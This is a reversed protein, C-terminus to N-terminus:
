QAKTYRGDFLINVVQDDQLLEWLQRVSGDSLDTWTIRNVYTNGDTLTFPESTLVMRDEIRNGFLKLTNGSNDIWLQEWQGSKTNYFNFSSGTLKGNASIWHEQIICGSQIKDTRNTGAVSGDPNTVEWQGMWFDFAEHNKTCCACGSDQALGFFVFLQM